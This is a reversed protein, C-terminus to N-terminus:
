LGDIREKDEILPGYFRHCDANYHPSEEVPCRGNCNSWDDGSYTNCKPCRLWVGEDKALM